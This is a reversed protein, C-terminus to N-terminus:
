AARRRMHAQRLHESTQADPAGPNELIGARARLFSSHADEMRAQDSEVLFPTERQVRFGLRDFLWPYDARGFGFTDKVHASLIIDDPQAPAMTCYARPFQVYLPKWTGDLMPIEALTELAIMAEHEVEVLSEGAFGLFYEKEEFRAVDGVSHIARRGRTARRENNDKQCKTASAAVRPSM